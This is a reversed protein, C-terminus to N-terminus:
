REINVTNTTKLYFFPNEVKKILIPHIENKYYKRFKRLIDPAAGGIM